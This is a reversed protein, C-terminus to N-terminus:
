YTLVCLVHLRLWVHVHDGVSHYIHSKSEMQNTMLPSTNEVLMM